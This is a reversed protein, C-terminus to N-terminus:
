ESLTKSEPASNDSHKQEAGSLASENEEPPPAAGGSLIFSLRPKIPPTVQVAHAARAAAIQQERETLPGSGPTPAGPEALFNEELTPFTNATKEEVPETAAYSAKEELGENAAIPPPKVIITADAPVRVLHACAPCPLNEGAHSSDCQIHQGCAPCSFKLDSM